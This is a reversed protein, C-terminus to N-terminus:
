EGKKREEKLKEMLEELEVDEKKMTLTRWIGVVINIGGMVMGFWGAIPYTIQYLESGRWETWGVYALFYGLGVCFGGLLFYVFLGLPKYSRGRKICTDGVKYALWIAGAFPALLLWGLCGM